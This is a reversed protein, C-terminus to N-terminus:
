TCFVYSHFRFNSGTQLESVDLINLKLVHNRLSLIKVIWDGGMESIEFRVAKLLRIDASLNGKHFTVSYWRINATKVKVSICILTLATPFLLKLVERADEQKTGKVKHSITVDSDSYKVNPQNERAWPQPNSDRPCSRVQINRPLANWKDGARKMPQTWAGEGSEAAKKTRFRSLNYLPAM